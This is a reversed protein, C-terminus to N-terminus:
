CFDSTLEGWTQAGVFGDVILGRDAQYREVAAKTAPGFKAGVVPLDFYGELRLMQQVESVWLLTGLDQDAGAGERLDPRSEQVDCSCFNRGRQDENLQHPIAKVEGTDFRAQCAEALTDYPGIFAVRDPRRSPNLPLSFTDCSKSVELYQSGEIRSMAPVVESAFEASSYSRAFEVLYKDDCGVSVGEVQMLDAESKPGEETTNSKAAGQTSGASSADPPPENTQLTRVAYVAGVGVMALVLMGAVVSAAVLVSLRPPRLREAAFPPQPDTVLALNGYRPRVVTAPDVADSATRRPQLRTGVDVIDDPVVVTLPRVHTRNDVQEPVVLGSSADFVELKTPAHGLEAQVDQLARGFAMASPTRDDIRRAMARSLAAELTAPMDARGVPLAREHVIRAKLSTPDNPAGPVEFPSRNALLSYVTAALSYVDSRVDTSPVDGLVEPPSWPVSLGTATADQEPSSAIGFDALLPAGYANTLVNHPKVDRHLIGARHATEVAGSLRVGIDLVVGVTMHENRFRAGLSPAPCFEMVMYPRGDPSVDAQYIPVISPHGSLQAMVNAEAHFFRLDASDTASGHAVKVAVDRSPVHQRYLYVDAFGGRGIQELLSFGVLKPPATASERTM